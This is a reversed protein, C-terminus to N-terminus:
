KDDNIWQCIKEEQGIEEFVHKCFTIICVNGGVCLFGFNLEVRIEIVSDGGM